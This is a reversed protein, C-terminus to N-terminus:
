FNFRYSISPIIPFLSVQRFQSERSPNSSEDLYLYFPNRRSYANYVGLVWAREGWRTKKRFTISADLRHFARMRYSNREGYDYINNGFFSDGRGSYIATPMTIANGSGYVWTASVDINKRWEHVVAIGLDHRRDYKYPFREGFNLDDFQRDTWSLTYGLWGTTRGKKKQILLEAGYSRGDGVAVKDQWDQNVNIFDAGERYEILNRMDKYYGELSIEYGSRWNYAGGLAWQQATQPRVRDTAPVWLDTPLGIGSNTLLHIFQAMQVYSAKLSLQENLLYRGAIRPQLSTYLEGNVRFASAHLGINVKLRRSLEIDDEVYAAFEMAETQQSGLLTDLADESFDDDYRVNLAGPRFTHHIANVGFRVYHNPSPLYDFDIKAAFDEIGSLYKAFGSDVLKQNASDGLTENRYENSIDFRYRSYTLTTNSFLKPTFMHNWRLASTINGWQLGSDSRDELEVGGFSNTYNTRAYFRDDGLYASLYLRDRDSFKHNVKANLDYFYYGVTEEGDTQSRILPRALVDIWTRRGSIIFSSKDKVIPGELTLKGAVLGLSGEGHFEKMNGEKMSIDIVSSLRGGYRAPFGGKILQVNNIADANFVSFFGFLHSANYVPVGDLLILNQDPGGGRVYLGSTGENGSQVGPLLQLTKLVDVEGLFAPLNKVQEIPVSITSMQTVEQIKEAEAASIVIEDLLASESLEINILTDQTLLLRVTQPQYGVYSYVISISDEPLTLSYFGFTNSSSGGSSKLDFVNAGILVEGDTADKIYGSITHKQALISSASGLCVLLPLLSLLIKRM